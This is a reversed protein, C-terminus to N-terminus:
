FHLFVSSQLVNCGTVEPDMDSSAVAQLRKEFNHFQRTAAAKDGTNYLFVAYNLSVHPDNRCASMTLRNILRMENDSKVDFYMVTYL